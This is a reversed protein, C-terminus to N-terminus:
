GSKQDLPCGFKFALQEAIRRPLDSDRSSLRFILRRGTRRRIYLIATTSEWKFFRRLVRLEVGTIDSAPWKRELMRWWGLRSDTLENEDATVIRPVRGWHLYMWWYYFAGCWWLCAAISTPLILATTLTLRHTLRWFLCLVFIALALKCCGVVLGTVVPMWYTWVAPVAFTVRVGDASEELTLTRPLANQASYDLIGPMQAM